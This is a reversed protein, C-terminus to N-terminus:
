AQWRHLWVLSLLQVGVDALYIPSETRAARLDAIGFVLGTSIALGVVEPSRQGRIAAIGLSLGTAAALGGVTRVLWFDEKPGTAAEFSRRHVLPWIGTAVMYSAHAGALFRAREVM